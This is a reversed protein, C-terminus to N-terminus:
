VARVTRGSCRDIKSSNGSRISFYYESGHIFFKKCCNSQLHWTQALVNWYLDSKRRHLLHSGMGIWIGRINNSKMIKEEFRGDVM